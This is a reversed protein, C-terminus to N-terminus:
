LKLIKNPNQAFRDRVKMLFKEAPNDFSREAHGSRPVNQPNKQFMIM